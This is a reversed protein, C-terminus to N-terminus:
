SSFVQYIHGLDFATSLCRFLYTNPENSDSSEDRRMLKDFKWRCRIKSGVDLVQTGASLPWSRDTLRHYTWAVRTAWACRSRRCFIHLQQTTAHTAAGLFGIVARPSRPRGAEIVTQDVFNL